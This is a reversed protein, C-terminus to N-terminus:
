VLFHQLGETRGRSCAYSWKELCTFQFEAEHAQAVRYSFVSAPNWVLREQLRAYVRLQGPLLGKAQQVPSSAAMSKHACQSLISDVPIAARLTGLIPLSTFISTASCQPGMLHQGSCRIGTLCYEKTRWSVIRQVVRYSHKYKCPVVIQMDLLVAM